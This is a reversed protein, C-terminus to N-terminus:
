TLLKEEEIKLVNVEKTAVTCGDIFIKHGHVTYSSGDESAININKCELISHEDGYGLDYKERLHGTDFHGVVVIKNTNLMRKGLFSGDDWSLADWDIKDYLMCHPKKWDVAHTDIAGHAFIYNETEYYWPLSKLWPLLNPYKSNIEKRAETIFEAFSGITQECGKDVLCWSEFSKTRGLFDDITTNVGNRMYNWPENSYELYDVLMTDHNGRIVIAKNEQTLRYLYNFMEVNENGRDFIDGCVILLHDQNNEDFGSEDLAKKMEKFHGHVDSITYIQKTKM